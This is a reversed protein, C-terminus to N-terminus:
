LQIFKEGKLPEGSGTKFDMVHHWICLGLNKRHLKVYEILEPNSHIWCRSPFSMYDIMEIIRQPKMLKEMFCLVHAGVTELM